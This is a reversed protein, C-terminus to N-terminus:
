VRTLERWRVVGCLLLHESVKISRMPLYLYLYVHIEIAGQRSCVELASLYPVRERMVINQCRAVSKVQSLAKAISRGPYAVAAQSHITELRRQRPCSSDRRTCDPGHWCLWEQSCRAMKEKTARTRAPRTCVRGIGAQIAIKDWEAWTALTDFNDNSFVVTSIKAWSWDTSSTKTESTIGEQWERLRECVRCRLSRSDTRNHRKCLYYEEPPLLPLNVM